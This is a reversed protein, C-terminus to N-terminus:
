GVAQRDPTVGLRELMNWGLDVAFELSISASKLAMYLVMNVPLPLPLILAGLLTLSGSQAQDWDNVKKDRKM